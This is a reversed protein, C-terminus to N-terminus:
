AQIISRCLGRPFRVRVGDIEAGGQKLIDLAVPMDRFEIGIEELITGANNEILQLGEEDLIEFFPIKRKAYPASKTDVPTGTRRADRGGRGRRGRTARQEQSM